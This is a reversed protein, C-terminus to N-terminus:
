DFYVNEDVTGDWIDDKQPEVPRTTDISMKKGADFGELFSPDGGMAEIEEEVTGYNGEEVFSYGNPTPLRALCLCIQSRTRLRSNLLPILWANCGVGLFLLLFYQMMRM